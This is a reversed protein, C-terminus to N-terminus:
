HNFLNFAEALFEIDMSESFRFRKSLRLDVTATSPRSDLGRDLFFMRQPGGSGLLGSNVRGNPSASIFPTVPRGSAINVIPPVTLDGFIVRGAGSKGLGFTEGVQWVASAVYRHTIDLDSRGEDISRDFPNSVTPFSPAFTGLQQGQDTAHSFTYSMQFQLGNTM